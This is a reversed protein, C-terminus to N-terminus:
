SHKSPIFEQRRFNKVTIPFSIVFNDYLSLNIRTNPEYILTQIIFMWLLSRTSSDVLSTKLNGEGGSVTNFLWYCYSHASSQIPLFQLKHPQYSPFHSAGSGAPLPRLFLFIPSCFDNISPLILAKCDSM